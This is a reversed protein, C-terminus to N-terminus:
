RGRKLDDAKKQFKDRLAYCRQSELYHGQRAATDNKDEHPHGNKSYAYERNAKKGFTRATSEYRKIATERNDKMHMGREKTLAAGAAGNETM